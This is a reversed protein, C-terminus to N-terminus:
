ANNNTSNLSDIDQLFSSCVFTHVCEIIKEGRPKEGKMYGNSNNKEKEIDLVGFVLIILPEIVIPRESM